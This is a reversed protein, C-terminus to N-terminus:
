EIVRHHEEESKQKWQYSHERRRLLAGEQRRLEFSRLQSRHQDDVASINKKCDEEILRM